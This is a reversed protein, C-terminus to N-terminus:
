KRGKGININSKAIKDSIPKSRLKYTFDMLLTRGLRGVFIEGGCNLLIVFDVL